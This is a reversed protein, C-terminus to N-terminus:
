AIRRRLIASAVRLSVLFSCIIAVWRPYRDSFSKQTMVPLDVEVVEAVFQDTKALVEGNPDIAGSIGSTSAIVVSRSHEIARFRSIQFQQEPQATWGYTANNTQVSIFQAGSNVLHRMYNGYAVEFCIVDGFVVGNIEFIGLETGPVFDNPVM